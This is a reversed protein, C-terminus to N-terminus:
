LEDIEYFPLKKTSRMKKKTKLVIKTKFNIKISDVTNYQISKNSHLNYTKLKTRKNYIMQFYTKNEKVSEQYTVSAM